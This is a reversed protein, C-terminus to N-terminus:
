RGAEAILTTGGSAPQVAQDGGGGQLEAVAATIATISEFTARTLLRRPFEIGFAAELEVMLEAAGFSTLGAKYLNTDDRLVESRGSFDGLSTVITRITELTM